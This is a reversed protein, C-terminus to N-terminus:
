YFSLEKTHNKDGCIIDAGRKRFQRTIYRGIADVSEQTLLVLDVDGNPRNIQWSHCNLSIASFAHGEQACLIAKAMRLNGYGKDIGDRYHSELGKLQPIEDFCEKLRACIEPRKAETYVDRSIRREVNYDRFRSTFASMRDRQAALEERLSKTRVGDHILRGILLPLSILIYMMSIFLGM